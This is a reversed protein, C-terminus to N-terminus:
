STGTLAEEQELGLSANLNRDTLIPGEIHLRPMWRGRLVMHSDKEADAQRPTHIGGGHGM